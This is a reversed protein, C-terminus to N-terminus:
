SLTPKVATKPSFYNHVVDLLEVPTHNAKILYKEPIINQRKIERNLDPNQYNTVAFVPIDKTIFHKKIAKLIEVGHGDSLMFDLIVLDPKQTIGTRIDRLEELMEEKKSALDVDFDTKAFIQRYIEILKPDSEVLIIKKM